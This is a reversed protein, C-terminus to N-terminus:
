PVTASRAMADNDSTWRSTVSSPIESSYRRPSDSIPTSTTTAPPGAGADAAGADPLLWHSPLPYRSHVGPLRGMSLDVAIRCIEGLEAVLLLQLSGEPLDSSCVDSSWDRLSRTHRRRSSFFFFFFLM